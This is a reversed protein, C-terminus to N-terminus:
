TRRSKLGAVRVEQTGKRSQTVTVRYDRILESKGEQIPYARIHAPDYLDVVVYGEVGAQALLRRCNRCYLAPVMLRHEKPLTVTCTFACTERIGPLGICSFYNFTGTPQKDMPAVEGPKAPHPLYVTMEGVQGTSLDLLCPAPYPVGPGCLACREPDPLNEMDAWLAAYARQRAAHAGAHWGLAFVAVLVAVGVLALLWQRNRRLCSHIKQVNGGGWYFCYRTVIIYQYKFFTLITNYIIESQAVM